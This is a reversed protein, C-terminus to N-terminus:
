SGGSPSGRFIGNGGLVGAAAAEWRPYFLRAREDLFAHRAINPRQGPIGYLETYFTRALQNVTLLDMRGNRVFATGGPEHCAGSQVPPGPEADDLLLARSLSDLVEPSAGSIAGWEIRTYYEM